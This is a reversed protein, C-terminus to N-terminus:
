SADARNYCCLVPRRIGCASVQMAHDSSISILIFLVAINNLVHIKETISFETDKKINCAKESLINILVIQCCVINFPILRHM